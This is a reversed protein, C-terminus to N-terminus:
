RKGLMWESQLLIQLLKLYHIYYLEEEAPAPTQASAAPAPQMEAGQNQILLQIMTSDTSEGFNIAVDSFQVLASKPLPM